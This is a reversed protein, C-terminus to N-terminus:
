LHERLKDFFGKETEVKKEALLEKLLQEQKKSIKEPIKVIVKVLQDGFKNSNILPM